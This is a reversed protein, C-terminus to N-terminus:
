FYTRIGASLRSSTSVNPLKSYEMDVNFSWNEALAIGLWGEAGAEYYNNGVQHRYDLELGMRLGNLPEWQVGASAGVRWQRRDELGPADVLDSEGFVFVAPADDSTQFAFGAGTNFTFEHRADIHPREWKLNTHWSIPQFFDGRPEISEISLLTFRRLFARDAELDQAIGILGMEIAAKDDFAASPDRFDHYAPRFQFEITDPLEDLKHYQLGVRSTGHGRDPSTAPPAIVPLVTKVGLKSRRSLIARERGSTGLASPDTKLRKYREYDSLLDLVGAQREPSLTSLSDDISELGDKLAALALKGESDELQARRTRLSRISSPVFQVNAILNEEGLLRITDVPITWLNFHETLPTEPFAVELLSLLHYSCNETFFYYDFHSILMEYAHRLVLDVRSKDLNLPYEWTDRNEIQGYERLKMHYPLLRFRGPFGGALGGIAYASGSVGPPIEAAFNISMNLLRSEPRQDKKDIRILTHGFASSPSNPHATPFILTLVEADLYEAYRDFEPCSQTPVLQDFEPLQEALWYRRAVFRCYASLRLPPKADTAYFAALTAALESEPDTKGNESLFFQKSDVQSLWQGSSAPKYHLFSRWQATDALNLDTAALLLQALPTDSGNQPTAIAVADDYRGAQSAKQWDNGPSSITDAAMTVTPFLALHLALLAIALRNTPLIGSSSCQRIRLQRRVILSHM